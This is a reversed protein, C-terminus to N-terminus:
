NGSLQQKILGSAKGFDMQGAYRARLEAMVKGMDKVSAAGTEAIIARIAELAESESMQKPLFREIVQIEEREQDALEQRGGQEYLAISEQRQKVMGQLMALIEGEEIGTTVGKGRAEIDKDKLKALVMRVTSLARQDKAKMSEKLAENFRERLM